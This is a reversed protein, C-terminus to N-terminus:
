RFIVFLIVYHGPECIFFNILFQPEESRIFGRLSLLSDTIKIIRTDDLKSLGSDLDPFYNYSKYFTFSTERDYDYNM